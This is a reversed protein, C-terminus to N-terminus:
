SATSSSPVSWLEKSKAALAMEGRSRSTPFFAGNAADRSKAVVDPTM